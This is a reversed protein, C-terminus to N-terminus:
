KWRKSDQLSGVVSHVFISSLSSLLLTLDHCPPHTAFDGCMHCAVPSGLAGTYIGHSTWLVCQGAGPTRPHHARYTATSDCRKIPWPAATVCVCCPRGRGRLMDWSVRIHCCILTAHAMLMRVGATVFCKLEVACLELPSRDGTCPCQSRSEMETYKDEVLVFRLLGTTQGFIRFTNTYQKAPDNRKRLFCWSSKSKWELNVNKSSTRRKRLTHGSLESVKCFYKVKNILTSTRLDKGNLVELHLMKGEMYWRM